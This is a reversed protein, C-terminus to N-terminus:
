ACPIGYHHDYEQMMIYRGWPDKIFLLPNKSLYDQQSPKALIQEKTALMDFGQSFRSSYSNSLVQSQKDKLSYIAIHSNTIEGIKEVDSDQINAIFSYQKPMMCGQNYSLYKNFISSQIDTEGRLFSLGLYAEIRKKPFPPLFNEDTVGRNQLKGIALDIEGQIKSDELDKKNKAATDKRSVFYRYGVGTSDTVTVQSIRSFYKTQIEDPTGGFYIDVPSEYFSLNPYNSKLRDKEDFNTKLISKMTVGGTKDPDSDIVITDQMMGISEKVLVFQDDIPIEDIAETDLIDKKTVKNSDLTNSRDGETDKNYIYEKYDKTAFIYPSPELKYGSDSRIAIIRKYDKYKGSIFEGAEFYSTTTESADGYTDGKVSYDFLDLKKDLKKVIGSFIRTVQTPKIVYAASADIIEFRRALNKNANKSRVIVFYSGIVCISVILIVVIIRVYKKAKKFM